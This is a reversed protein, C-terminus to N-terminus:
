KKLQYVRFRNTMSNTVTYRGNVIAPADSSPTWIAALLNTAYFLQFAPDSASWTLVLNTGQRTATLRSDITSFATPPSYSSWGFRGDQYRVRWMYNSGYNLKGDPVTWSLLRVTNTGSDAVVGNGSSNLVQWQSARHVDGFCDSDSFASASLTPTLSQSGAGAAPSVNNPYETGHEAGLIDPHDFRNAFPEVCQRPQTSRDHERM